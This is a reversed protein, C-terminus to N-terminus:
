KLRLHLIIRGLVALMLLLANVLVFAIQVKRSLKIEADSDEAKLPEAMLRVAAAFVALAAAAAVVCLGVMVRGDPPEPRCQLYIGGATLGVSLLALAIMVCFLVRENRTRDNQM